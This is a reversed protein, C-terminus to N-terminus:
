ADDGLDSRRAACVQVDESRFLGIEAAVDPHELLKAIADRPLEAVIAHYAIEPLSCRTCVRGSLKNVLGEIRSVAASMRDPNQRHWLEIECRVEGGFGGRAQWEELVGTESLRDEVGWIRIDDLRHFVDKWKAYGRPLSHGSQWRAWLGLIQKIATKNSFVLFLRGSLVKDTPAGTKQHVEFFDETAEIEPKILEGLWELGDVKRVAKSFDEVTGVIELVIVEEPELGTAETRLGVSRLAFQKELMALRPGLRAQQRDVGPLRLGLPASRKKSREEHVVSPSLFLLPRETM